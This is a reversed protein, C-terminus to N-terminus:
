VVHQGRAQLAEALAAGAGGRDAIVLWGADAALASAPEQDHAAQRRPQPVWDVAYLKDKWNATALILARRDVPVAELGDVGAVVQGDDTVLRIDVVVRTSDEANKRLVAHSWVADPMPGHLRLHAIAVPLYAARGELRSFIAGVAQFCGDLLAPHILHGADAAADIAVRALSEGGDGSAAIRTVARVTRFAPGYDLGLAAYGDYFGQVDLAEGAQALRARLGALDVSAPPQAAVSDIEGTVHLQWDVPTTDGGAPNSFIRLGHRAGPAGQALVTQVMTSRERTVVLAAQISLNALGPALEPHLAAAASLAMDVYAAAPVVVRGYVQHDNLFGPRRASLASEYLLDTAPLAATAVAAGLLSHGRGAGAAPRGPIAGGRTDPLWHRQREFPYDPLATRPPATQDLRGARRWDIAAGAVYLRGLAALIEKWDDGNRRLSGLKRMPGDGLTARALGTLATGPGIELAIGVGQGALSALGAMFDVPAGVHAVWYDAGCVEDDVLRGTLASVFGISPRSFSVSDAVQRFAALMPRMLPSHFAHSVELLGPDAIGHQAALRACIDQVAARAGSIVTQTPSNFAAISVRDAMAAVESAVLERPAAIAAMAGGGPLAQMLRGRAAVLRAADELSFVGALCAAAFEGISHGIVFGPRVGWSLWLQALAYELAFLAPQTYRTESLQAAGAGWLLERLPQDLEAALAEECRDIAQRFVPHLRYLRQGMGAYQAGQGAFLFAVRPATVPAAGGSAAQAGGAISALSGALEAATAAGLSLRHPLHARGVAATHCVADIDPAPMRGLHEAYRGALALLSAESRASLCLLHAPQAAVATPAAEQPPAAEVVVHANTGSFGFSSVGAIRRAASPWPTTERAIAFPLRKWPIHPNLEGLQPYGPILGRDLSLVLKILGAMGAALETHGVLAKVSGIYLPQGPGHSGGFVEGLAGVEIPDGLATGTGHTEIYGVERPDVGANALAQRILAAQSPGSPVTLGSTAGDQNVCSGRIVACVRDGDARARGLTKLVLVAAGESRVYGNARADFTRCHGDPSMMRAKSLAITAEPSLLLNTGAALATTCEGRRLSEAACHVAVLSSSCAADISMCPGTLGFTYAIRGAAVSPANGTGWYANLTQADCAAMRGYDGGTIAAFVGTPSGELADPAIAAHELASWTLELLLRQQPDMLAAELPAINFFAADFRDVDSVFGGLRTCMRGPADPDPDYLADIDWRDAPVETIADRGESLLSWFEELGNAGPFRCAMGVIAIPEARRRRLAALEGELKQIVKFARQLDTTNEAM